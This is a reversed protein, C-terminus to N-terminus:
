KANYANTKNLDIQMLELKFLETIRKREEEIFQKSLRKRCELTELYVLQSKLIYLDDNNLKLPPIEIYLGEFM